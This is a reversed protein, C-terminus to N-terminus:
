FYNLQIDVTQSNLPQNQQGPTKNEVIMDAQGTALQYSRERQMDVVSAQM